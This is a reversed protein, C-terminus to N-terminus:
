FNLADLSRQTSASEYVQCLVFSPLLVMGAIEEAIPLPFGGDRQIVHSAGKFEAHFLDKPVTLEEEIQVITRSESFATDVREVLKRAASLVDPNRLGLERTTQQLAVATRCYFYKSMRFAPDEPRLFRSINTMADFVEHLEGDMNPALKDIGYQFAEYVNANEPCGQLALGETRPVQDRYLMWLRSGRGPERDQKTM